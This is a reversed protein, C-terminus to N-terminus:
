DWLDGYEERYDNEPHRYNYPEIKIKYHLMEKFRRYLMELSGKAINDSCELSDGSAKFYGQACHHRNALQNERWRVHGFHGHVSYIPTGTETKIKDGDTVARQYIKLFQENTGLWQVNPLAITKGESGYKALMINMSAMDPGAFNDVPFGEIFIEYSRRLAEGWIKTDVFLPCNCLDFEPIFGEPMIWEGKFQHHPDKYSEKQEKVVGVILGTKEAIKFYNIPNRVLILDADLVCVAAYDKGIEDAYWYRKRCVVESRGHAEQWEQESINHLIVNYNLKSFQSTFEDKLDIGLVHVDQKNDIFDLSNLLVCLEVTYTETAGVVFAFNSKM